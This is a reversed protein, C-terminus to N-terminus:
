SDNISRSFTDISVIYLYDISVGKLVDISVGIPSDISVIYLYDISLGKMVNISVGIPNDISSGELM